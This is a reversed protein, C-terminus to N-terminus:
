KLAVGQILTYTAFTKRTRTSKRVSTSGRLFVKDGRLASPLTITASWVGSSSVKVNRAVVVGRFRENTQCSPAARVVVRARPAALPKTVRGGIKVRTAGLRKAVTETMRRSFKLNLSRKDGLRAQYRAANTNRLEAPPLKATTAFSLDGKVVATAVVADEGWTAVLSVKKGVHDPGAVGRLTTRGNQGYVDTLQLAGAACQALPAISAESNKQPAYVGALVCGPDNADVLGDGDNDRGDACAAPTGPPPPPTGAAPPPPPPPPPTVAPASFTVTADGPARLGLRTFTAGNVTYTGATAATVGFTVTCSVQGISLGGTASFASGGVPATVSTGPCSTARARAATAGSVVTLGAPLTGSFSWGQKSALETTNTITITLTAESGLTATPGAFAQDLSPDADAILLNDLAHWGNGGNTVNHLEYGTSVFDSLVSLTSYLRRGTVGDGLDTAAICPDQPLPSLPHVDPPGVEGNILVFSFAGPAAGACDLAAVDVGAVLFHGPGDTLETGETIELEIDGNAAVPDADTNEGVAHNADPDEAGNLIGLKQALLQENADGPAACGAGAGAFSVVLGNCSAVSGEWSSDAAYDAGSPIGNYLEITVPTTGTNEFDENFLAIPADPVGPTALAAPAAFAAALSAMTAALVLRVVSRTM